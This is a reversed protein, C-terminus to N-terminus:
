PTAKWTDGIQTCAVAQTVALRKASERNPFGTVQPAPRLNRSRSVLANHSRADLEMYNRTAVLNRSGALWLSGAMALLLSSLVLGVMVEVLVTGSSRRGLSLRSKM